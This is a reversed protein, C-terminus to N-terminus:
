RAETASVLSHACSENNQLVDRPVRTSHTYKLTYQGFHSDFLSEWLRQEQWVLGSCYSWRRCLDLVLSSM